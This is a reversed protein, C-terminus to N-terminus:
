QEFPLKEEVQKKLEDRRASMQLNKDASAGVYTVGNVRTENFWRGNNEHGELSFRVKVEDGEQLGFTKIKDEGFVRLVAKSAITQNPFWFYELVMDQSMWANGTRQSVGSSIPLLKFVKGEIEM